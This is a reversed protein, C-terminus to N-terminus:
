DFCRRVLVLGEATTSRAIEHTKLRSPSDDVFATDTRHEEPVHVRGRRLLDELYSTAVREPDAPRLSGGAPDSGAIGFRREDAPASLTLPQAVGYTAGHITVAMLGQEDGGGPTAEAM